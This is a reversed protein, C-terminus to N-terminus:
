VNKRAAIDDCADKDELTINVQKVACLESVQGTLTDFAAFVPSPEGYIPAFVFAL